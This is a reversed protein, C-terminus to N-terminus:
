YRSRKEVETGVVSGSEDNDEQVTNRYHNSITKAELVPFDCEHLDNRWRQGWLMTTENITNVLFLKSKHLMGSILM